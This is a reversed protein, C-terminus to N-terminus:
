DRPGKKHVPGNKKEREAENGRGEEDLSFSKLNSLQERRLLAIYGTMEKERLTGALPALAHAPSSSSARAPRSGGRAWSRTDRRGAGARGGEGKRGKEEESVGKGKRTNRRRKKGKRRIVGGKEEDLAEGEEM